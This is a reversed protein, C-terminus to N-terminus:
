FDVTLPFFDQNESAEKSMTATVLVATEGYQLYISGNAQKAMKGTEAILTRGNFEIERRTINFNHM